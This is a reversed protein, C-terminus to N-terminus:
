QSSPRKSVIWHYHFLLAEYQKETCYGAANIMVALHYGTLRWWFEVDKNAAPPLCNKVLSHWVKLPPTAQVQPKTILAPM